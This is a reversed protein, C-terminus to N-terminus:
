NKPTVTFHSLTYDRVISQSEMQDFKGVGVPVLKTNEFGALEVIRTMPTDLLEVTARIHDCHRELETIYGIVENALHQISSQENLPAYVLMTENKIRFYNDMNFFGKPQYIRGAKNPKNLVVGSVIYKHETKDM